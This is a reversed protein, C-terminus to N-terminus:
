KAAARKSRISDIGILVWGVILTTGGFPALPASECLGFARAYLSGCFLLIGVLFAAGAGMLWRSSPTARLLLVVLILALAHNMQYEVATQYVTLAYADLRNALAHRGVADLAVSLGGNLAAALLFVRQCM